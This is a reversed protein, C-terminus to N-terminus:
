GWRSAAEVIPLEAPGFVFWKSLLEDSPPESWPYAAVQEAHSLLDRVTWKPTCAVPKSLDGEDLSQFLDVFESQAGLYLQAISTV